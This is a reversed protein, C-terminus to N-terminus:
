SESTSVLSGVPSWDDAVSYSGTVGLGSCVADYSIGVPTGLIWISSISGSAPGVEPLWLINNFYKLHSLLGPLLLSKGHTHVKTGWVLPLNIDYVLINVLTFKSM